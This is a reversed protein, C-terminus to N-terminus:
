CDNGVTTGWQSAPEERTVWGNAVLDTGSPASGTRSAHTLCAALTRGSGPDFEWFITDLGSERSLDNKLYNARAFKVWSNENATLEIDRLMSKFLGYLQGLHKTQRVNNLKCPVPKRERSSKYLLLHVESQWSTKERKIFNKRNASRRAAFGKM